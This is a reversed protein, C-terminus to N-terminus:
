HEMYVEDDIDDIDMMIMGAIENSTYETYDYSYLLGGGYAGCAVYKGDFREIISVGYWTCPENEFEIRCGFSLEKTKGEKRHLEILQEIKLSLGERNLVTM